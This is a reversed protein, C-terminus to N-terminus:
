DDAEGEKWNMEFWNGQSDRVIPKGCYRCTSSLNIGIITIKDIPRHWGLLGCLFNKRWLKRYKKM